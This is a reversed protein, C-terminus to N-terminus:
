KTDTFDIDVKNPDNVAKTKILAVGLLNNIGIYIAVGGIIRAIADGAADLRSFVIASGLLTIIGILLRIIWGDFHYREILARSVLGIGILALGIAVILGMATQIWAVPILLMAGGAGVFVIGGVLQYLREKIEKPTKTYEWILIAGNLILGGGILYGMFNFVVAPWVFAAVGFLILAVALITKAIKQNKM